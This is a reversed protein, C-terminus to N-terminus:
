SNKQSDKFHLQSNSHNQDQLQSQSPKNNPNNYM